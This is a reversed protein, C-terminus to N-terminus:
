EPMGPHGFDGDDSNGILIQALPDNSEDDTICACILEDLIHRLLKRRM